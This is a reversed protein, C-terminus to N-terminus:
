YTTCGWLPIISAKLSCLNSNDIMAYFHMKQVTEGTLNFMIQKRMKSNSDIEHLYFIDSNVIVIHVSEIIQNSKM